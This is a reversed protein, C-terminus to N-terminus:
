HVKAEVCAVTRAQEADCIGRRIAAVGDPACEWNGLPQSILCRLFGLMEDTCVTISGMALCNPLCKDVNSCKLEISRDCIQRCMRELSPAIQVRAMALSPSGGSPDSRPPKESSGVPPAVNPDDKMCALLAALLWSGVIVIRKM